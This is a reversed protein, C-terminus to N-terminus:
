SRASVVHNEALSVDAEGCDDHGVALATRRM